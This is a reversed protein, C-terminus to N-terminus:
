ERQTQHRVLTEIIEVAIKQGNQDLVDFAALLRDHVSNPAEEIGLLINPTTQLVRSIRVLTALDPERSGRAYNGYRGVDLGARRAVETDSLGLEKARERLTQGFGIM